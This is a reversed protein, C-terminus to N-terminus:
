LNTGSHQQRASPESWRCTGSGDSTTDESGTNLRTTSEAIEQSAMVLARRCGSRDSDLRFEAQSCWFQGGNPRRSVLSDDSEKSSQETVRRHQRGIRHNAESQRLNTCHSCLVKRCGDHRARCDRSGIRGARLGGDLVRDPDTGDRWRNPWWTRGLRQGNSTQLAAGLPQHSWRGDPVSRSPHDRVDAARRAADRLRRGLGDSGHVAVVGRRLDVAHDAGFRDSLWGSPVQALAYFLFFFPGLLLSMQTQSLGLDEKIYDGAFSVCFRDLYLLVSMLTLLLVILHRVGSPRSAAESM